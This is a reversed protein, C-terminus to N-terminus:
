SSWGTRSPMRIVKASSKRTPGASDGSSESGAPSPARGTFRRRTSDLANQLDQLRRRLDARDCDAVRYSRREAECWAADAERLSHRAERRIGQRFQSEALRALAYGSQLAGEALDLRIEDGRRLWRNPM